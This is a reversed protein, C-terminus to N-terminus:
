EEEDKAKGKGSSPRSGHKGKAPFEDSRGPAGHAPKEAAEDQESSADAELPESSALPASAVPVKGDAKAIQNAKGAKGALKAEPKALVPAPSVLAGSASAPGKVSAVPKAAVPKAVPAAKALPAPHAPDPKAPGAPKAVAPKATEAPKAATPKATEAPKAVAPKATEAPKAATPKATEAPKAAVATAGAAAKVPTVVVPKTDLSDGKASPTTTPAALTAPTGQGAKDVCTLYIVQTPAETRDIVFDLALTEGKSDQAYRLRRIEFSEPHQGSAAVVKSVKPKPDRLLGVPENDLYVPALTPNKM